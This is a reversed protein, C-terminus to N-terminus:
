RVSPHSGKPGDMPQAHNGPRYCLRAWADSALAEVYPRPSTMGFLEPEALKWEMRIPEQAVMRGTADRTWLRGVYGRHTVKLGHRLSSVRATSIVLKVAEPTIEYGNIEHGLPLRIVEGTIKRVLAVVQMKTLSM